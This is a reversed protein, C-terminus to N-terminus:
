VKSKIVVIKVTLDNNNKWGRMKNAPCFVTQDQDFDIEGEETLLAPQGQIVYFYVDIPLAHLPIESNKELLLQVMEVKSDSLIMNGISGNNNLVETWEAPKIIKM